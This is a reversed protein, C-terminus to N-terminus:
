PDPAEANGRVSISKNDTFIRFVSPIPMPIYKNVRNVEQHLICKSVRWSLASLLSVSCPFQCRSKKKRM